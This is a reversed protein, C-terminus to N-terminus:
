RYKEHMLVEKGETDWYNDLNLGQRLKHYFANLQTFRAEKEQTDM